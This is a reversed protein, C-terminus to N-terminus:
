LGRCTVKYSKEVPEIDFDVDLFRKITQINTSLHGSLENTTFCGAGTIAMYILLQDALFSDVAGSGTLFSDAPNIIERVVEESPKGRKGFATFVTTRRGRVFLTICNGPGDSDTVDITEINDIKLKSKKLLKKQKQAIHASLKATYIRADIRIKEEPECIDIKAQTNNRWPQIDIQIRGGGAPYFGHKILKCRAKFGAQEIAPFFSEVLFDYPPAWPNHTGGTVTVKSPGDTLFLTPLVTQIVLSASGASGIDFNYDGSRVPGPLFDLVKSGAKAGTYKGESIRCAAEVCSLHQRALGPRRRAARINEIHLRKGTICALTLSTRLIQGGGEGSSGDISVTKIDSM